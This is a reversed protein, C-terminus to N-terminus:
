SPELIKGESISSQRIRCGDTFDHATTGICSGSWESLLSGLAKTTSFSFVAVASSSIRWQLFFRGSWRMGEAMSNM